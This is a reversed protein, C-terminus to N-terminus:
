GVWGVGRQDGCSASYVFAMTSDAMSDIAFALCVPLTGKGGASVRGWWMVLSATGPMMRVAHEKFDHLLFALSRGGTARATMHGGEFFDQSVSIDPRNQRVDFAAPCGVYAGFLGAV